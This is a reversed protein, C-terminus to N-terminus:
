GGGIGFTVFVKDRFTVLAGGVILGIGGFLGARKWAAKEMAEVRQAIPTFTEIAREIREIRRDLKEMEDVINARSIRSRERDETSARNMEDLRQLIVGQHVQMAAVATAMDRITNQTESLARYFESPDAM